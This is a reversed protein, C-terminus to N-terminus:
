FISLNEFEPNICIYYFDKYTNFKIFIKINWLCDIIKDILFIFYLNKYTLINLK